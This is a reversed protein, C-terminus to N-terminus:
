REGPAQDTPTLEILSVNMSLPSELAFAIAAAIDDPSLLGQASKFRERAADDPFASAFFGTETRGPCIETHRVCTGTLETRLSRAFAHLAGKTATYVPLGLTYLGAISGITVIHGRQRQAMGKLTAHTAHLVATINVDIMEDMHVPEAGLFGAELDHALGANNILIDTEIEELRDRLMNTDRLDLVLPRCGTAAALADLRAADRDIATVEVDRNRLMQVCAAGIGSAAGTVVARQYSHITM